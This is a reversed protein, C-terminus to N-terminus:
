DILDRRPNVCNQTFADNFYFLYSSQFNISLLANGVNSCMYMLRNIIIIKKKLGNSVCLNPHNIIAEIEKSLNM